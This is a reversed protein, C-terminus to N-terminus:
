SADEAQGEADVDSKRSEEGGLLGADRPHCGTGEMGGGLGRIPVGQEQRGDGIVAAASRVGRALVDATKTDAAHIEEVSPPAGTTMLEKSMERWRRTTSENPAEEVAETWKEASAVMVLQM